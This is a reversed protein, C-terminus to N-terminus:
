IDLKACFSIFHMFIQQYSILADLKECCFTRMKVVEPIGGHANFGIDFMPSEACSQTM